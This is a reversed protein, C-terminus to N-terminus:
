FWCNLASVTTPLGRRSSGLTSIPNLEKLYLSLLSPPPANYIDYFNSLTMTIDEDLYIVRSSNNWCGSKIRSLIAIHHYIPKQVSPCRQIQM